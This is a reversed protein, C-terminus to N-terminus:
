NLRRYFVQVDQDAPKITITKGDSSDFGLPVANSQCIYSGFINIWTGAALSNWKVEDPNKDFDIALGGYRSISINGNSYVNALFRNISSGQCVWRQASQPRLYGVSINGISQEGNNSTANVNKFILMLNVMGNLLNIRSNLDYWVFNSNTISLKGYMNNNTDNSDHSWQGFGEHKLSAMKSATDILYEHYHSRNTLSGNPPIIIVEYQGHEPLTFTGTTGHTVVGLYVPMTDILRKFAVGDILTSDTPNNGYEMGFLNPIIAGGVRITREGMWLVPIASGLNSVNEVVTSTLSDYVRVKVVYNNAYNCPMAHQTPDTGYKNTAKFNNSGEASTLQLSTYTNVVTWKTEDFTGGYTAASCKYLVRNYFVEDDVAYAKTQDVSFPEGVQYEATLTNSTNGISSHFWRGSVDVYGYDSKSPTRYPKVETLVPTFYDILTRDTNYNVTTSFGRSDTAVVKFGVGTLNSMTASYTTGSGTMNVTQSGNTIKVSSLNANQATATVTVTKNSLGKVVDGPNTLLSSIQSNNESVGFNSITPAYTSPINITFNVTSSGVATTASSNAYTTLTIKGTLAKVTKAANMLAAIQEASFTIDRYTTVAKAGGLNSYTGLLTSGNYVQLTVSHVFASSKRNTNVRFTKNIDYSSASMTPVSTRPITSLATNSTSVSGGAPTWSNGDNKSWKAIAYGSLTGDAKHTVTKTVTKSISSGSSMSSTSTSGWSTDKGTNNDHWYITLKNSSGSSFSGGGSKLSGKVTISTTNNAVSQSGATFEVHLTWATSGSPAYLSKNKSATAM